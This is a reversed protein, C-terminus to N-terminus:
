TQYFHCFARWTPLVRQPFLLFQENRAIEGKGVTNEVLSTSCVRLFRPKNPFRNVLCCNKQMILIILIQLCCFLYSWIILIQKQLLLFINRFFCLISELFAYFINHFFCLLGLLPWRSCHKNVYYMNIGNM